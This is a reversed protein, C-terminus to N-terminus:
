PIGMEISKKENTFNLFYRNQKFINMFECSHKGGQGGEDAQNALFMIFMGKIRRARQKGASRHDQLIRAAPFPHDQSQHLIVRLYRTDKLCVCKEHCPSEAELDTLYAGESKFLYTISRNKRKSPSIRTKIGDRCCSVFCTSIINKLDRRLQKDMTQAYLDYHM